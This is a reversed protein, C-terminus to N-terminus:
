DVPSDPCSNFCFAHLLFLSVLQNEAQGTQKSICGLFPTVWLPSTERIDTKLWSLRECVLGCIIQDLCDRLSTEEEWAVQHKILNVIIVIRSLSHAHMHIDYAYIIKSLVIWMDLLSNQWWSLPCGRHNGSRLHFVLLVLNNGLSGLLLRSFFCFYFYLCFTFYLVNELIYM